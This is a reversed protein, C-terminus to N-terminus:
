SSSPLAHGIQVLGGESVGLGGRLMPPLKSNPESWANQRRTCSRSRCRSTSTSDYRREALALIKALGDLEQAVAEIEAPSMGQQVNMAAIQRELRDREALRTAIQPAILAPDIGAEISAILKTIKTKTDRLENRLGALRAAHGPDGAQGAASSRPTPSSRSGNTSRVSSRTRGSM